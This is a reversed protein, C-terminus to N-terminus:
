VLQTYFGAVSQFSSSAVASGFVANLTLSSGATVTVATASANGALYTASTSASGSSSVTARVLAQVTTTSYFSVWAEVDFMSFTALLSASLAVGVYNDLVTGGSGGSYAHFALTPEGSAPSALIGSARLHFVSGAVASNTIVNSPVTVLAANTTANGISSGAATLGDANLSPILQGLYQFTVPSAPDVNPPLVLPM